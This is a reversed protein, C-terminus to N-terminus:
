MVSFSSIKMTKNLTNRPMAVTSVLSRRKCLPSNKGDIEISVRKMAM